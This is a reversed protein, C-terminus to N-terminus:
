GRKKRFIKESFAISAFPLFITVLVVPLYGNKTGEPPTPKPKKNVKISANNIEIEFEEVLEGKTRTGKLKSSEIKYEGEKNFKVVVWHVLKSNMNIREISISINVYDEGKGKYKTIVGSDNLFDVIDIEKYPKLLFYCSLNHLTWTEPNNIVTYIKVASGKYIETANLVRVVRMQEKCGVDSNDGYSMELWNVCMMTALILIIMSIKMTGSTLREHM